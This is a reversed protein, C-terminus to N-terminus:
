ESREQHSEAPGPDAPGYKRRRLNDPNLHPKCALCAKPEDDELTHGPLWGDICTIGPRHEVVEPDVVEGTRDHRPADRPTM